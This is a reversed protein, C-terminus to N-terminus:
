RSGKKRKKKGGLVRSYPFFVALLILFTAAGLLDYSDKAVENYEPWKGYLRLINLKILGFWPIDWFAIGVINKSVPLNTIGINQDAAEYVTLTSNFKIPAAAVALNYDGATIFGNHGQMGKLNVFLNRHAYGMDMIIVYSDNIIIWSQGHYGQVEPTSGNWYLYFIARHIITEGSPNKYLIVNGYEGYTSYGTERGIVYTIVPGPLNDVKKVFVIDGVNLTGPDWYDSHTMSESAVTSVPPWIGSYLTVSVLFVVIILPITIEAITKAKKRNPSM